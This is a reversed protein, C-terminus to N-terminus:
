RMSEAGKSPEASVGGGTGAGPEGPLPEEGNAVWPSPRARPPPRGAAARGATMDGGGPTGPPPPLRPPPDTDAATVHLARASQPTGRAGGAVEGPAPSGPRQPRERAQREGGASPVGRAASQLVETRTRRRRYRPSKPSQMQNVAVRQRGLAKDPDM